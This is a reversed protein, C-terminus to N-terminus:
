GGYFLAIGPLTMLLVLATSTLMWATDAANISSQAALVPHTPTTAPATAPASSVAVVSAGALPAAALDQSTAGFHCGLLVAFLCLLKILRM